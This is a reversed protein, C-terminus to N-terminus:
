KDKPSIEHVPITVRVRHIQSESELIVLRLFDKSSHFLGRFELLISSSAHEIVLNINKDLDRPRSIMSNVIFLVEQYM